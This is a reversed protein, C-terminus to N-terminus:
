GSGRETQLSPTAHEALIMSLRRRGRNVRSAITGPACGCLAAAEAHSRLAGDVLALALRQQFPLRALARELGRRDDGRADQGTMVGAGALARNGSPPSPWPSPAMSQFLDCVIAFVRM